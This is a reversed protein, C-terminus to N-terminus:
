EQEVAPAHHTVLGSSKGLDAVQLWKVNAWYDNPVDPQGPDVIDVGLVGLLTGTSVRYGVMARRYDLYARILSLQAQALDEQIELVQYNTSLGNAFKTQEAELNREALERSALAAEVAAAGDELARVALRVERIV